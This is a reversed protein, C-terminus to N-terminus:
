WVVSLTVVHLGSRRPLDLFELTDALTLGDTVHLAEYPIQLPEPSLPAINWIPPSICRSVVYFIRDWVCQRTSHRWSYRSNRRRLLLWLWLRSRERCPSRSPGRSCSYKRSHSRGNFSCDRFRKWYGLCGGHLPACRYPTPTLLVSSFHLCGIRGCRLVKGVVVLFWLISAELSQCMDTHRM